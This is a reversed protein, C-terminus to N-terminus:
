TLASGTEEVGNPPAPDTVMWGLSRTAGFALQINRSQAFAPPKIGVGGQDLTQDPRV